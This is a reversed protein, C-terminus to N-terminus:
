VVDDLDIPPTPTSEHRIRDLEDVAEDWDLNSWSGIAAHAGQLVEDNTSSPSGREDVVYRTVLEGDEFEPLAILTQGRRVVIGGTLDTNISTM